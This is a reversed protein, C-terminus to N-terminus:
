LSKIFYLYSECAMFDCGRYAFFGRKDIIIEEPLKRGGSFDRNAVIEHKYSCNIVGCTFIRYM